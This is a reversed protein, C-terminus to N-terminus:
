VLSTAPNIIDTLNTVSQTAFTDVSNGAEDTINQNITGSKTYSVTITEDLYARTQLTVIVKGNSVSRSSITASQGAVSVSFDPPAM